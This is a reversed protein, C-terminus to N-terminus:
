PRVPIPKFDYPLDGEPYSRSPLMPYDTGLYHNFVFRLDNVSNPPSPMAGEPVGPLTYAKIGKLRIDQMTKEGFTTDNAQFGEDAALVIVPPTSSQERIKDIADLLLSNLYELQDRYYHRGEASALSEDTSGPFTVPKGTPGYIYPDHPLLTHFVVFKPRNRARLNTLAAFQSRISTRFRTNSAAKSFGIQGGVKRLLSKQLWLNMFSDPPAMPSITPNDGAFTVEDTDLHVYDYGAATAVRAARSDQMVSKVPRVDQSTKGLVRPFNTLYDMNLLSAMNSESDSYPSRSDSAWRFGRQELATVFASDDYHFYTKLVDLRAYDDPMLVYIDPRPGPRPSPLPLTTAWLRADRASVMPHSVQYIAISAVQPLALAAAGFTLIIAFTTLDRGARVVLVVLVVGCVLGVLWIPLLWAPPDLETFIGYYFFAVVLLSALVGAMPGRRTVAYTVAFVAAAVLVCIGLPLWLVSLRIESQNHAFLSLVPFLAFLVTALAPTVAKLSRLM